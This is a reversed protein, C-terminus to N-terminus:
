GRKKNVDCYGEQNYTSICLNVPTKYCLKFGSLCILYKSCDFCCIMKNKDKTELCINQCNRCFDITSLYEELNKKLKM